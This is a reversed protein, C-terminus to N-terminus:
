KQKKTLVLSKPYKKDKNTAKIEKLYQKLFNIKDLNNSFMMDCLELSQELNIENYWQRWDFKYFNNNNIQYRQEILENNFNSSTCYLLFKTFFNVNNQWIAPNLTGNPCRFEITNMVKIKETQDLSVNDFNIAQYREFSLDHIFESLNFNTNKLKEYKGKFDKYVPSAYRVLSPRYTFYEGYVFRFIINEYISWTKIFNLWAEKNNGIIQSGVHIHGGSNKDITALSSLISCIKDLNLWTIKTDTLIPSNIEVGKILSGDSNTKWRKNPFYLNIKKDIKNINAHEAELELGFTINKNLNLTNRLEIKYEDILIILEQLDLGSLKSLKTNDKPNIFSFIKEKNNTICNNIM